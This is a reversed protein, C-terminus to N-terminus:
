VKCTMPPALGRQTASFAERLHFHDRSYHYEKERVVGVGGWGSLGGGATGGSLAQNRDM